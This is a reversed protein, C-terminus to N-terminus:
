EKVEKTVSQKKSKPVAETQAAFRKVEEPTLDVVTGGELVDNEGRHLYFGERVRKKEM